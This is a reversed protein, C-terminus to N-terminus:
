YLKDNNITCYGQRHLSIRFVIKKAVALIQVQVGNENGKETFNTLNLMTRLNLAIILKDNGYLKEKIHM